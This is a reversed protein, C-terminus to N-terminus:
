SAPLLARLNDLEGLIDELALRLEQRERLLQARHEQLALIEAGLAEEVRSAEESGPAEREAEGARDEGAFADESGAQLEAGTESLTGRVDLFIRDSAVDAPDEADRNRAEGSSHLGSVTDGAPAPTQAEPLEDEFSVPLSSEDEHTAESGAEPTAPAPKPEAGSLDDAGSPTYASTSGTAASERGDEYGHPSSVGTSPSDDAHAIEATEQGPSESGPSELGSFEPSGSPEPIELPIRRESRDGVEDGQTDSMIETDHIDPQARSADEPRVSDAPREEAGERLLRQVGKITYGQVYLLDTIRRLVAIDEPSYYRRGGGRKLPKVESFRTEWFRLVHQPVHLEDAVESITRYANPGKELRDLAARDESMRALDTGPSISTM